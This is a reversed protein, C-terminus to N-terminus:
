EQRDELGNLGCCLWSSHAYLEINSVTIISVKYVLRASCSEIDHDLAGCTLISGSCWNFHRLLLRVLTVIDHSNSNGPLRNIQPESAM